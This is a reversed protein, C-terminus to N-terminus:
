GVRVEKADSTIGCFVSALTMKVLFHVVEKIRVESTEVFSMSVREVLDEVKGDDGM